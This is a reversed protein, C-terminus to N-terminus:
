TVSASHHFVPSIILTTLRVVKKNLGQPAPHANAHDILAAINDRPASRLATFAIFHHYLLLDRLLQLKFIYLGARQRFNTLLGIERNDDTTIAVHQASRTGQRAVIDFDNTNVAAVEAEESVEIRVVCLLLQGVDEFAV